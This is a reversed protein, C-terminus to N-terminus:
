RGSAKAKVFIIGAVLGVLVSALNQMSWPVNFAVLGIFAVPIKNLSGVLSYTTATTTSLFWLSAFSMFFALLASACAAVLFYPDKLAPDNIVSPLEGYYYMLVLILPLSLLNNLFVMSFEDLKTKNATLSCVKDMVGRLYLSYGATFVCNVLQWMYGKLDFALDTASACVASVGMLALTCWVAAGYTKRYLLFDGGITFLNTLNKLVTAMPVGLAKLAFFSTFIMGVFILNVPFWLRVIAPNFKEVRVFGLLASLRVLVVCVVCQFFLLSMPANFNFSSLAAKNLLVMGASACCYFIGAVLQIPMGLMRGPVDQLALQKQQEDKDLLPGSELDATSDSHKVGSAKMKPVPIRM